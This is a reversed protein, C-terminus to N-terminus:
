FGEDQTLGPIAERVEDGTLHVGTKAAWDLLIRKKDQSDIPLQQIWNIVDQKSNPHNFAPPLFESM